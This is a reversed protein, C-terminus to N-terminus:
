LVKEARKIARSATPLYQQSDVRTVSTGLRVSVEGVAGTAAVAGTDGTEGAGSRQFYLGPVVDLRDFLSAITVEPARDKDFDLLKSSEPSDLSSAFEDLEVIRIM